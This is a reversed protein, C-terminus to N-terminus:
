HAGLTVTGTARIQDHGGQASILDFEAEVGSNLTLDKTELTGTGSGSDSNPEVRGGLAMLVGVSGEGYLSGGNMIVNSALADDIGLRGSNVTM